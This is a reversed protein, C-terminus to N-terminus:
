KKGKGKKGSKGGGQKTGAGLGKAAESNKAAKELKNQRHRLNAQHRVEKREGAKAVFDALRKQAEEVRKRANEVARCEIEMGLVEQAKQVKARWFMSDGLRKAVLHVNTQVETISKGDPFKGSQDIQTVLACADAYTFDVVASSTNSNM